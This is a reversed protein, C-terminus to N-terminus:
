LTALVFVLETYVEAILVILSSSYVTYDIGVTEDTVRASYNTCNLNLALLQGLIATLQTQAQALIEILTAGRLTLGTQLLINGTDVCRVQITIEYFLFGSV